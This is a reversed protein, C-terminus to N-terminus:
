NGRSPLVSTGPEKAAKLWPDRDAELLQMCAKDCSGENEFGAMGCVFDKEYKSNRRNERRDRSTLTRTIISFRHLYM